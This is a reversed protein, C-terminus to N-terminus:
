PFENMIDKKEENSIMLTKMGSGFIKKQVAADTTSAAATLQLPILVSKSLLKFVNKMLPFGTKLLSGLRKGLFGGSQGIKYM